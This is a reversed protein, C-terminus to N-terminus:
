WSIDAALDLDQLSRQPSHQADNDDVVGGSLLVAGARRDDAMRKGPAAVSTASLQMVRKAEVLTVCQCLMSQM